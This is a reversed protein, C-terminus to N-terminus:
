YFDLPDVDISWRVRQAAKSGHFQEILVGLADNLISRKESTLLLQARYRGALRELPAPVPGLWAVAAADAQSLTRSHLRLAHSLQDLFARPAAAAVAEARILCVYSYPPLAALHREQLLAQAFRQYGDQVLTQLLPNEPNRTQLLVQGPREARGARGAVQLILQGMQEISRFDTGYLGRDTDLVGVLTVNPFHHGKALMQTGILIRAEGSTAAALHQQLAGRRRTSDRDIRLTRIGPFLEIMASEVRETGCGLLDINESACSECSTPLRREAGCHHCRLLGSKIHVTMHSDCRTCPAPEGCDNCMLTPAFGRRNIFLLVQGDADLHARMTDILRDSLGEKLRRRRIDLLAIQPPQAEGARETLSLETFRGVDVNNLSELSPTATGMVVPVNREHARMVALDRAHYRFGDQQKLSADHEEDIVVLGLRPLPTFVASRTGIVVNAKGSAALLWNQMRERDNMASHLCILCGDLRRRFRGLLQPTLSIEPVLVLVQLNNALVRQILQLYVETKGSGTVGNLLFSHFSGLANAVTDFAAQQEANLTRAQEVARNIQLEEVHDCVAFGKDVLQAMPRRWGRSVSTLEAAPVFGDAAILMQILAQQVPARALAAAQAASAKSTASFVEVKEIEAPTGNRLLAPLATAFVDGAPHRYYRCCWSLLRMLDEPLIPKDDLRRTIRRLKDAPIDSHSKCTVVVGTVNRRGFPVSVRQGPIATEAYSWRYDFLRHLPCPVAVEVISGSGAEQQDTPSDVVGTPSDITALLDTM